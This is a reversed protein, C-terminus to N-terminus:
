SERLTEYAARIRKFTETAAAIADPGGVGYRDPHHILALRRYANKIDIQPVGEELGLTALARIRSMDGEERPEDSEATNDVRSKFEGNKKERVRDTMAKVAAELAEESARDDNIYKERLPLAWDPFSDFKDLAAVADKDKPDIEHWDRALHTILFSHVNILEACKERLLELDTQEEREQLDQTVWAIAYLITKKPYPLKRCDGILPIHESILECFTCIINRYRERLHSRDAYLKSQELRKVNNIANADGGKAARRYWELAITLDKPVGRGTEYLVGLNNQSGAHGQEAAMRYWKMAEALDRPIGQGEDYMVGLNHQARAHEQEAAIRYWAAAEVYNQDFGDGDFAAQGFGCIAERNELPDLKLDRLLRICQDQMKQVDPAQGQNATLIQKIEKICSEFREPAQGQNATLIQEAEPSPTGGKREENDRDDRGVAVCSAIVTGVSLTSSIVLWWAHHTADRTLLAIAVIAGTFVSFLVSLGIAAHLRRGSPAVRAGVYVFAWPAAFSNALQSLLDQIIDDFPTRESALGVGIQVVLSATLAVPLVALWRLWYIM